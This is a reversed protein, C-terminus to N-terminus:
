FALCKTTCLYNMLMLLQVHDLHACRKYMFYTPFEMIELFVCMYDSWVKEDLHKLKKATNHAQKNREEVAL